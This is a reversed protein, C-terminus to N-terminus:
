TNSQASEFYLTTVITKRPRAPQDMSRAVLWGDIEGKVHLNFNTCYIHGLDPRHKLWELLSFLTYCLNTTFEGRRGHEHGSWYCGFDATLFGREDTTRARPLGFCYSCLNPIDREGRITYRWFATLILNTVQQVMCSTRLPPHKKKRENRKADRTLTGTSCPAHCGHIHM